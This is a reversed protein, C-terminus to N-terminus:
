YGDRLGGFKEQGATDWCYFRIKGCNTFFDLPHVEVGITAKLEFDCGDSVTLNPHYFRYMVVKPSYAVHRPLPLHAYGYFSTEMVRTMEGSQTLPFFVDFRDVERLCIQKTEPLATVLPVNFMRLDPVPDNNEIDSPNFDIKTDRSSLIKTDDDSEETNLLNIPPNPMQRRLILKM